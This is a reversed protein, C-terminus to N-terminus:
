RKRVNPDIDLSGHNPCSGIFLASQPTHSVFSASVVRIRKREMKWEKKEKKGKGRKPESGRKKRYIYELRGTEKKKEIAERERERAKIGARRNNRAM